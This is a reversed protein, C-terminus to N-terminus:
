LKKQDTIFTYLVKILRDICMYLQIYVHKISLVQSLTLIEEPAKLQMTDHSHLLIELSMNMIFIYNDYTFEHAFHAFM